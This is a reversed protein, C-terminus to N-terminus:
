GSNRLAPYEYSDLLWLGDVDMFCLACSHGSEMLSSPSVPLDLAQLVSARPLHEVSM